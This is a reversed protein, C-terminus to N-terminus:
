RYVWLTSLTMTWCLLAAGAIVQVMLYHFDLLLVGYHMIAANILLSGVSMALFRVLVRGHPAIAGFTWRYHLLYNYAISLACAVTSALTTSLGLWEVQLLLLGFYLITTSIGVVLFRFIEATSIM